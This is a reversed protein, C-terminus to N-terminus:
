SELAKAIQNKTDFSVDIYKMEIGNVIEPKVSFTILNNIDCELGSKSAFQGRLFAVNEGGRKDSFGPNQPHRYGAEFRAIVNKKYTEPWYGSPNNDRTPCDDYVRISVAKGNLTKVVVKLYKARSDLANLLLTHISIWTEMDNFCFMDAENGDVELTLQTDKLNITNKLNQFDLFPKDSEYTLSELYDSLLILNEELSKQTSDWVSLQNEKFSQTYMKYAALLKEGKYDAMGGITSSANILPKRFDHHLLGGFRYLESGPSSRYWKFVSSLMLDIFILDLKLSKLESSLKEINLEDWKSSKIVNFKIIVCQILNRIVTLRTEFSGTKTSELYIDIIENVNRSHASSIPNDSILTDVDEEVVKEDGTIIEHYERIQHLEDAYAKILVLSTNVEGLIINKPDASDLISLLFLVRDKQHLPVSNIDLNESQKKTDM